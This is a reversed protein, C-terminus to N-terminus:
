LKAEEDKWIQKNRALDFSFSSTLLDKKTGYFQTNAFDENRQRKMESLAEEYLKPFHKKFAQARTMKRISKSPQIM